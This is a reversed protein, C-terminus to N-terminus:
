LIEKFKSKIQNELIKKTSEAKGIALDVQTLSSVKKESKTRVKVLSIPDGHLIIDGLFVLYDNFEVLNGSHVYKGVLLNWEEIQYLHIDSQHVELLVNAHSEKLVSVVVFKQESTNRAMKRWVSTIPYALLGIGWQSWTEM